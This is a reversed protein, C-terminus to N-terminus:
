TAALVDSTPIEYPDLVFFDKGIVDVNGILERYVEIAREDKELIAKIEFGADQFGKSIGGIGSLLDVVSIKKM